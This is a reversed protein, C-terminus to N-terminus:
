ALVVKNRIYGLKMSFDCEMFTLCSKMCSADSSLAVQSKPRVSRVSPFSCLIEKVRAEHVKTHKM